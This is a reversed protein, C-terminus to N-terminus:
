LVARSEKGEANASTNSKFQVQEEDRSANVIPMKSDDLNSTSKHQSSAPVVKNGKFGSSPKSSQELSKFHDNFFAKIKKWNYLCCFIAAVVIFLLGIIAGALYLVGNGLSLCKGSETLKYGELCQTCRDGPCLECDSEECENCRFSKLYFGSMCVECASSISCSKCDKPCSQSAVFAAASLFTALALLRRM